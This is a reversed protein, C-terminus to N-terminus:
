EVMLNCGRVDSNDTRGLVEFTGDAYARGLDATEIFSVSHLNGLDIVNIGGTRNILGITLPDTLDRIFIRLWPPCHYSLGGRTYAQSFMETMGYESYIRDVSFGEKLMEHLEDRTIEERRGKMGGTEFVLCGSLDAKYNRALDMLAFTVGWVMIKRDNRTKLRGIQDVMEGENYLYFGSFASGSKEMFFNLMSILSSNKRELYSPLLALIHYQRVDGFFYEFNTLAHRLYFSYEPYYHISSRTGTTGSSEFIGAPSWAGTILRHTKFFTIPMFPIETLRNIKRWDVKRSLLFRHYVPNHEAQFRFVELATHAFSSANLGYIQRQFSKLIDL